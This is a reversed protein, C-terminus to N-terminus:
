RERRGRKPAKGKPRVTGGPHGPLEDPREPAGLTATPALREPAPRGPPALPLIQEWPPTGAPKVKGSAFTGYNSGPSRHSASM